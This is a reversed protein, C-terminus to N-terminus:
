AAKERDPGAILERASAILSAISGAPSEPGVSIWRAERLPLQKLADAIKETALKRLEHERLELSKADEARGVAAIADASAAAERRVRELRAALELEERALVARAVETLQAERALAQEREVERARLEVEREHALEAMRLAAQEQAVRAESELARLKEREATALAVSRAEERVREAVEASMQRLLEADSPRISLIELQNVRIGIEAELAALQARLDAVLTGQRVLLDDLAFGAAQRQVSAALLQRFARHQPTSLLHKASRLEAPPADLNVLGLKQFARFPADGEPAVSWLVFGDISVALQEQSLAPVSFSVRQLTSTFRVVVDGPRRWLQIGVGARVLRGNRICLLWEDPQATIRARAVTWVCLAALVSALGVITPLFM